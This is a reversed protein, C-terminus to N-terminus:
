NGGRQYNRCYNYQVVRPTETDEIDETSVEWRYVGSVRFLNILSRLWEKQCGVKWIESVLYSWVVKLPGFGPNDLCLTRKRTRVQVVEGVM